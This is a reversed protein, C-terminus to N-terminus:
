AFAGAFFLATGVSITLNDIGWPTVLELCAAVGATALSVAAAPFLGSAPPRSAMVVIFTVMFSALLMATTGPVTKRRGWIRVAAKAFRAGALGACGDGWGMVLVGVAAARLPVLGRWSLNVLVLLAASYCISGRDRGHAAGEELPVMRVGPALFAALLSLAPGASAVWPDDFMAVAILWWHSLAIHVVKRTTGAGLIGARLLGKGAAIVGLVFAASVALGAADLLISRM